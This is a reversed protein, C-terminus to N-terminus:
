GFYPAYAHFLHLDDYRIKIGIIRNSLIYLPLMVDYIPEIVINGEEDVCGWKGDPHYYEKDDLYLYHYIYIDFVGWETLKTNFRYMGRVLQNDVEYEPPLNLKENLTDM